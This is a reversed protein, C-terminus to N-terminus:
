ISILKLVDEIKEYELLRDTVVKLSGSPKTGKKYMCIVPIGLMQAWGLEIGQGTSPYSVEALVLDCAKQEFLARTPYPADSTEHPLIFKLGPLAATRLPQYLNNKFDFERSHSVYIIM